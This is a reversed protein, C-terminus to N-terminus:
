IREECRIVVPGASGGPAVRFEVRVDRYGPRAGVATYNGPLLQLQRQSFRGFRGVKYLTVDTQNDSHLMVPVPTGAQAILRELSLRKRELEPGRDALGEIVGLLQKANAMPAASQLREPADIYRQLNDFIVAMELSRKRGEAAFGVLPDIALAAAYKEAAEHWREQQELGRGQEKLLNLRYRQEAAALRSGTEEVEKAGPRLRRANALSRKAENFAGREMATLTESMARAFAKDAIKQRVRDLATRGQEFFEDLAVAQEYEAEARELDGNEEHAEGGTLLAFVQEITQARQEGRRATQNAADIALAIGFQRQAEAGDANELARSGADLAAQLREPRSQDLANLMALTQRYIDTAQAFRAQSFLVDAEALNEMVAEFEQEAWLAIGEVELATQRRLVEGLAREAERKQRAVELADLADASPKSEAAPPAPEAEHGRQAVWRPLVFVVLLAVVLLLALMGLVLRRAGDPSRGPHQAVSRSEARSPRVVPIAQQATPSSENSRDDPVHKVGARQWYRRPM